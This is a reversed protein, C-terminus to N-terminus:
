KNLFQNSGAFVVFQANDNYAIFSVMAQTLGTLSGTNVTIILKNPTQPNLSLSIDYLFNSTASPKAKIGTIFTIYKTSATWNPIDLLADFALAGSPIALLADGFYLDPRFERNNLIVSLRFDFWLM